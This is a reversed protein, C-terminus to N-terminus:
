GAGFHVCAGAREQLLEILDRRAVVISDAGHRRSVPGVPMSTIFSGDTRRFESLEVPQATPAAMMAEQLDLRGLARLANCWLILAGGGSRGDASREYVVPRLGARALAVAASLGGVGGGIIAIERASM